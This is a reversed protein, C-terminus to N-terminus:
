PAPLSTPNRIAKPFAVRDIRPGSWDSWNNMSLTQQRRLRGDDGFDIILAYGKGVVLLDADARYQSGAMWFIYGACNSWLYVFTRESDFVGDPNGLSQLVEQRTTEGARLAEIAQPTINTRGPLDDRQHERTPIPVVICGCCSLM